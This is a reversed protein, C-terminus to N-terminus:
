FKINEINKDDNDSLNLVEISKFNFNLDQMASYFERYLNGECM